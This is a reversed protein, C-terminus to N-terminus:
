VVVDDIDAVEHLLRFGFHEAGRVEAALREVLDLFHQRLHTQMEAHFYRAPRGLIDVFEGLTKLIMVSKTMGPRAGARVPTRLNRVQSDRSEPDGSRSTRFSLAFAPHGGSCCTRRVTAVSCTWLFKLM